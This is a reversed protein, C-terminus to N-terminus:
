SKEMDGKERVHKMFKSLGVNRPHLSKVSNGLVLGEPFRTSESLGNGRFSKFKPLFVDGESRRLPCADEPSSAVTSDLRSRSVVERAGIFLSAWVTFFNEAMWKKRQVRSLMRAGLNKAAFPRFIWSNRLKQLYSKTISKKREVSSKMFKTECM